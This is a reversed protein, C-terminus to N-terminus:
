NLCRPHPQWKGQKCTTTINGSGKGQFSDCSVRLEHGPPRTEGKTVKVFTEKRARRFKSWRWVKREGIETLTGNPVESVTCNLEKCPSVGYETWVGRSCLPKVGSPVFGEICQVKLSEGSLTLNRIDPSVGKKHSLSKPLCRTDKCFPAMGKWEGFLCQVTSDRALFYFKDCEYEIGSGHTGTYRKVRGNQIPPPAGSCNVVICPPFHGKWTGNQCIIRGGPKAERYGKICSPSFGEGSLYLRTGEKKLGSFHLTEKDCYAGFAVTFYLVLFLGSFKYFQM